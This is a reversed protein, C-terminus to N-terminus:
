RRIGPGRHEEKTTKTEQAISTDSPTGIKLEEDELLLAPRPRGGAPSSPHQSGLEGAPRTQKDEDEELEEFRNNTRKSFSSSPHDVEDHYSSSSPSPHDEDHDGPGFLNPDHRSLPRPRTTGHQSLVPHTTSLSVTTDHQSLVPHTGTDHQSIRPGGNKARSTHPEPSPTTRGVADCGRTSCGDAKTAAVFASTPHLLLVWCSPDGWLLFSFVFSSWPATARLPMVNSTTMPPGRDSFKAREEFRLMRAVIRRRGRCAGLDESCLDESTRNSQLEFWRVSFSLLRVVYVPFLGSDDIDQGTSPRSRRCIHRLTILFVVLCLWGNKGRTEAPLRAAFTNSSSIKHPHVGPPPVM